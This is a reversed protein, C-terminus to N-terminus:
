AGIIEEWSRGQWLTLQSGEFELSSEAAVVLDRILDNADGYNDTNELDFIADELEPSLYWFFKGDDSYGIDDDDISEPVESPDAVCFLYGLFTEDSAWVQLKDPWQSGRAYGFDQFINAARIVFAQSKELNLQM